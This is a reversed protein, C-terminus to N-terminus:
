FVELPRESIAGCSEDDCVTFVAGFQPVEGETAPGDCASCTTKRM